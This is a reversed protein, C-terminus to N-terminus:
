LMITQPVVEVSGGMGSLDDVMGGFPSSNTSDFINDMMDQIVTADDGTYGLENAVQRVLASREKKAVSKMQMDLEIMERMTNMDPIASKMKSVLAERRRMLEIFQTHNEKEAKSLSSTDISELFALRGKAKDALRQRLKEMANTAMNFEEKSLNKKLQGMIDGNSNSADLVISKSLDEARKVKKNNDVEKQLTAIRGKLKAIEANAASLRNDKEKGDVASVPTKIQDKKVSTFKGVAFGAAFLVAFLIAFVIKKM